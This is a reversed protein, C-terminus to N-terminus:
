RMTRITTSTCATQSWRPAADPLQKLDLRIMALNDRYRDDYVPYAKPQRVVCADVVQEPEALGIRGIESKAMAILEPDSAQWLADGEFCFYELGLCSM